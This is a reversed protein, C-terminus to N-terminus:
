STVTLAGKYGKDTGVKSAGFVWWLSIIALKLLGKVESIIDGVFPVLVM